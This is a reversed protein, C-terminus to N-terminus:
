KVVKCVIKPCINYQRVNQPEMYVNNLPLNYGYLKVYNDYVYAAAIVNNFAGIYINQGNINICSYYNEGCQYVGFYKTSYNYGSGFSINDQGYMWICTNRSYIRNNIPINQQLLDKDLHFNHPNRIKYEYNYLQKADKAFISFDFWSSDVLIGKAGYRQYNKTGDGYCRAIMNRWVTYLMQNEETLLNANGIYGVGYINPCYPDKVEKKMADQYRVRKVTGTNIFEIDIYRVGDIIGVHNIIKFLGCNNSEYLKDYDIDPTKYNNPDKVNGKMACELIVCNRYGTEIFEILVKHYGDVMGYDDVIKFYGSYNSPYIKDSIMNISDDKVSGNKIHNYDTDKEYGTNEFRIRCKHSNGVMGYDKIIKFKGYNISDIVKGVITLSNDRVRLRKANNYLVINEYGTDIFKIKCLHRGKEDIGLDEIIKYKGTKCEYIKDLDILSPKM